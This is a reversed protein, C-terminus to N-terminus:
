RLCALMGLSRSRAKLCHFDATSGSALTTRERSYPYSEMLWPLDRVWQASIEELVLIDPNCDRIVTTVRRPNGGRTNVNLLMARFTQADDSLPVHGCYCYYFPLISGVNLFVSAFFIAATKRRQGLFSARWPYV